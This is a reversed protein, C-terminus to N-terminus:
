VDFQSRGSLVTAVLAEVWLESILQQVGFDEVCQLLRFHQDLSPTVVVVGNPWVTRQAVSWRRRLRHQWVNINRGVSNTPKLRFM